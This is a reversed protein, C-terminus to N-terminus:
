KLNLKGLNVLYQIGENKYFVGFEADAPLM